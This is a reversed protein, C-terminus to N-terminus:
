DLATVTKVSLLTGGEDKCWKPIDDNEWAFVEIEITGLKARLENKPTSADWAVSYPLKYAFASHLV